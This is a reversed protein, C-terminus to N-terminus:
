RSVKRVSWGPRVQILANLVVQNEGHGCQRVSGEMMHATRCANTLRKEALM